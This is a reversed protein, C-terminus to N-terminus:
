RGAAPVSVMPMHNMQYELLALRKDADADAVIRAIKEASAKDNQVIVAEALKDAAKGTREVDATIPHIASMYLAGIVTLGIFITQWDTKQSKNLSDQIDRLTKWIGGLEANMSAVQTEVKTLRENGAPHAADDSM